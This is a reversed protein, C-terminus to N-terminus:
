VLPVGAWVIDRRAETFLVYPVAKVRVGADGYVLVKDNVLLGNVSGPLFRVTSPLSAAGAAVTIICGLWLDRIVHSLRDSARRPRCNPCAAVRIALRSVKGFEQQLRVISHLTAFCFSRMQKRFRSSIIASRLQFTSWTVM